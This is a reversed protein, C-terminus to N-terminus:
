SGFLPNDKFNNYVVLSNSFLAFTSLNVTTLNAKGTLMDISDGIRTQFDDINNWLFFVFMFVLIICGFIYKIKRYNYM